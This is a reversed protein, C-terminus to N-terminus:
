EEDEAACFLLLTPQEGPETKPRCVRLLPETKPRRCCGDTSFRSASVVYGFGGVAGIAKAGLRLVGDSGGAVSFGLRPAGTGEETFVQIVGGSSNGYLASYPGRLVEISGVSGLDVNSIQGQGDPLTAPIGDVYLRVGRIGFSARAGFGRVSIQVDQAYNQRDRALLGPVGGLSESLNIQARGDRVEDGGIRDISAPIDFARAATRTATVVVPALETAGSARGTDTQALPCRSALLGIAALGLYALGLYARHGRCTKPIPSRVSPPQSISPM